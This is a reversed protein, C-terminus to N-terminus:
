ANAEPQQEATNAEPLLGMAVRLEQDLRGSMEPNQSITARAAERGQGLRDGTSLSFWSGSKEVLGFRIGHDLLNGAASIGTGDYMIDFEAQRFPAAMKNKVIKVRTRSGIVVDSHKISQIRRIDIRVSSYFKLANGGTTVEPSGFMVGIKMRIQNIFILSCNSKSVTGTLKRLAQSMLRAHLGVHTDGMDGEIEAKPVLAAVSDVVICDVAGSRVLMDVIELAQEGTDPQAVLLNDVDLGLKRAYNIDLAHEADIFAVVGGSRQCNSLVHLALTTKGSSEPGYIETIRGKPLGGMGLAEDIGICGTSITQVDIPAQEDGLRM